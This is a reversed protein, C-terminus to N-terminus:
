VYWSRRYGDRSPKLRRRKREGGDMWGGVWGVLLKGEMVVYIGLCSDEAAAELVDRAVVREREREVM